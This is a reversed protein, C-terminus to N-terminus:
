KLIVRLAIPRHCFDCFGFSTHCIPLKRKAICITNFMPTFSEIDFILSVEQTDRPRLVCRTQGRVTRLWDTNYGSVEDSSTLVRGSWQATSFGAQKPLFLFLDGPGLIDKFRQLDAEELSAFNGRALRPYRESTLKVEGAQELLVKNTSLTRSPIKTTNVIKAARTVWQHGRAMWM